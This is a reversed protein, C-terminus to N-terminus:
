KEGGGAIKRQMATIANRLYKDFAPPDKMLTWVDDLRQFDVVKGNRVAAVVVCSAVVGFQKALAEDTQFDVEHFLMSGSSLERRYQTELLAMTMKEIANCTTCRFTSHLYYVKVVNQGTPQPTAATPKISHRGLSFGISILVFALLLNGTWTIHKNKKM